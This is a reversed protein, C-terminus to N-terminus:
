SFNGPEFLHVLKTVKHGYTVTEEPRGRMNNLGLNQLLNLNDGLMLFHNFGPGPKSISSM